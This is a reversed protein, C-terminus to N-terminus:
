RATPSPLSTSTAIATQFEPIVVPHFALSSITRTAGSRNDSANFHTVSELATECQAGTVTATGSLPLVDAGDNSGNSSFDFPWSEDCRMTPELVSQARKGNTSTMGGVLAKWVGNAVGFFGDAFSCDCCGACAHRQRDEKREIHYAGVNGQGYQRGIAVEGIM